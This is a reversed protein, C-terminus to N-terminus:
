ASQKAILELSSGHESEGVRLKAGALEASRAVVYLGLGRSYRGGSVTKIDVQGSATLASEALEPSLGPGRDEVLFSVDDDSVKVTMTVTSRPPAVTLANHILASLARLFPNEVALFRDAEHAGCDLKLVVGHSEAAREAQGSIARVVSGVSLAMASGFKQSKLDHCLLELSDIIRGMAEVSLQLDDVAERADESMGDSVMNLFGVNSSLAALPNRMDHTILGLVDAITSPSEEAIPLHGGSRETSSDKTSSDTMATPSDADTM